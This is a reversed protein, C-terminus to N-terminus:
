PPTTDMPEDMHVVPRIFATASVSGVLGPTLVRKPLVFVSGSLLSQQKQLSAPLVFTPHPTTQTILSQSFGPQPYPARRIIPITHPPITSPHIQRTSGSAQPLPFTNV